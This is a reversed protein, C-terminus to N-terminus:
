VLRGHHVQFVSRDIQRIRSNGQLTRLDRSIPRSSRTRDRPTRVAVSGTVCFGEAIWSLAEAVMRM